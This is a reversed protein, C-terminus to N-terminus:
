DPVRQLLAERSQGLYTRLYEVAALGAGEELLDVIVDHRALFPLHFDLPDDMHAYALRFEALIQAILADLRPSGAMAVLTRHFEISAAAVGQWEREEAAEQGRRIAGRLAHLRVEPVAPAVALAGCEVVERATILDAIDKRGLVRVFFGRSLIHVVLRERVLLQLGERLTSRSVGLDARVQEEPLKTGPQVAGSVIRDRIADAVRSAAGLSAAVDEASM